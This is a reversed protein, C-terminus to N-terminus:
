RIKRINWTLWKKKIFVIYSALYLITLILIIDWSYLGLLLYIYIWGDYLWRDIMRLPPSKLKILDYKIGDPLVSVKIYHYFDHVPNVGILEAGAGGTIIYPTKGWFGRYYAHIHSAFVMTVNYRDFLNSLEKASNSDTLADSRKLKKDPVFLPIHMFIFRYKYSLSKELEEKLWEKQWPGLNKGNADDLVIFYCDGVTFSYYFPGFIKYYNGRGDLLLEHNGMVTLLPKNLRKAQKLFLEFNEERGVFVLDGNDISFLVDEKNIRDILENFIRGSNKNDGFVIFSFIKRTRDIRQLSRYNWDRISITTIENYVKVGIALTLLISICIIISRNFLKNSM